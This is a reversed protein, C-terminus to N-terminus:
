CEGSSKVLISLAERRVLSVFTIHGVLREIQQGSARGRRCLKRLGQRIRWLKRRLSSWAQATWVGVWFATKCGMLSSKMSQSGQAVCVALLVGSGPSRRKGTPELCTHTTLTNSTGFIGLRIPDGDRLRESAMLGSGECIHQSIRQCWWMAHSWGM